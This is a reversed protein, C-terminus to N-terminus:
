THSRGHVSVFTNFFDRKYIVYYRKTETKILRHRGKNYENLPFPIEGRRHLELYFERFASDQCEIMNFEGGFLLFYM